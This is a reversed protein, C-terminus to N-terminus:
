NSCTLPKEIRIVEKYSITEFNEEIPAFCTSEFYFFEGSKIKDKKGCRQCERYDFGYPTKIGVYVTWGCCGKKIGLIKFESGKKLLCTNLLSVVRQGIYFPPLNIKSM